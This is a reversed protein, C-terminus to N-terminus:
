KEDARSLAANDSYTGESYRKTLKNINGQIVEERTIELAQRLGELYFEVDGLEKVVSDRDLKKNFIVHKKIVDVVEGVEGSLGLCMHIADLKIYDLDMFIADPDKKLNGVFEPYERSM